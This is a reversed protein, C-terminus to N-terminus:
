SVLKIYLVFDVVYLFDLPTAIFLTVQSRAMTEVIWNASNWSIFSLALLTITATLTGARYFGYPVGLFGTGVIFNINFFFGSLLDVSKPSIMGDQDMNDKKTSADPSRHAGIMDGKTAIAGGVWALTLVQAFKIRHM